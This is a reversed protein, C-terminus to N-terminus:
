ALKQNIEDAVIRLPNVEIVNGAEIEFRLFKEITNAEYYQMKFHFPKTSQFVDIQKKFLKNSIQRLIAREVNESRSNTPELGIGALVTNVAKLKEYNLKVKIPLAM